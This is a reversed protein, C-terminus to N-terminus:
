LYTQSHKTEMVEIYYKNLALRLANLNEPTNILGRPFPVYFYPIFNNVHILLSNGAANVAYIKIEPSSIRKGSSNTNSKVSSTVDIGM